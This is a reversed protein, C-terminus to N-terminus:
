PSTLVSVTVATASYAYLSDTPALAVLLTVGAALTYGTAGVNAGGLQVATAGTNNIAMNTIADHLSNTALLTAVGAAVAVQAGTAM